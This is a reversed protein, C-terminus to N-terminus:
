NTVRGRLAPARSHPGPRRARSPLQVFSKKMKNATELRRLHKQFSRTLSMMINLLRPSLKKTNKSYKRPDRKSARTRQPVTRRRKRKRRKLSKRQIRSFMVVTKLILSAPSLNFRRDIFSSKAKLDRDIIDVSHRRSFFNTVDFAFFEASELHVSNNEPLLSGLRLKLFYVNGRRHGEEKEEEKGNSSCRCYFRPLMLM